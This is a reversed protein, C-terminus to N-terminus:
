KRFIKVLELNKRAKEPKDAALNNHMLGMVIPPLYCDEDILSRYIANSPEFEGMATLCKAVFMKIACIKEKTGAYKLASEAYRKAVVFDGASFSLEAKSIYFEAKDAAYLTLLEM